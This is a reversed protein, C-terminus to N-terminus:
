EAPAEELKESLWNQDIEIEAEADLQQTYDEIRERVLLQELIPKMEEFDSGAPLSEEQQQFIRMLKDETIELDRIVEKKLLTEILVSEEIEMESMDESEPSASLEAVGRHFSETEELGEEIAKNLLLQKKILEELLKHQRNQLYHQQGPPLDEFEDFLDRLKIDEGDVTALVFDPDREPDAIDVEEAEPRERESIEPEDPRDEDVMEDESRPAAGETGPLTTPGSDQDHALAELEETDRHEPYSEETDGDLPSPEAEERLTPRQATDEDTPQQRSTETTVELGETERREAAHEATECGGALIPLVILAPIIIKVM